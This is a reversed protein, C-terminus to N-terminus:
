ILDNASLIGELKEDLDKLETKKSARKLANKSNEKDAALKEEQKAKAVKVEEMKKAEIKQKIEQERAIEAETKFKKAMIQHRLIDTSLRLNQDIALIAEKESDFEVLAYYGYANHKIEHALKKKGWYERNSIEGGMKIIVEDVKAIIQKAEDETFKNPVIFLIEYHGKTSKKTKSM